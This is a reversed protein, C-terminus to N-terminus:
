PTCFDHLSTVAKKLLYPCDFATAGNQPWETFHLSDNDNGETSNHTTPEQKERPKNGQAITEM